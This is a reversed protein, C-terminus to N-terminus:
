IHKWNKRKVILAIMSQDVNYMKGLEKLTHTPKLSRIEIVQAETLKAAPNLIGPRSPILGINAAHEMNQAKTCWTLNWDNNNEKDGDDHNVEPLNYPNPKFAIAVLRHVTKNGSKANKSINVIVYDGEDHAIALILEKTFPMKDQLFGRIVKRSISKVRGQNSIQYMGEYGEIYKWLEIGTAASQPKAQQQAM